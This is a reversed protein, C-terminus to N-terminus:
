PRSRRGACSGRCGRHRARPRCACAPMVRRVALPHAREGVVGPGPQASARAAGLEARAGAAATTPLPRPMGRRALEAAQSSLQRATGTLSWSVVDAGTESCALVTQAFSAHRRGL